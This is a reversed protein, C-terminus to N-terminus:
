NIFFEDLNPIFRSPENKRYPIAGILLKGNAGLREWWEEAFSRITVSKGSGVNKILPVGPLLDNRYISNIVDNVVQDVAIFDRIQEGLTMPFDQGNSAAVCLSPWFNGLFQGKGFVSFIRLYSLELGNEIAYAIAVLSGAAKSSAYPSIPLLPANAPIFEFKNASLGYEASTGAIVVRRVGARKAADILKLLTNVNWYLLDTYSAVQPSVGVSAMHVLIDIGAFDKPSILDMPKELWNIKGDFNSPVNGGRGVTAFVQNEGCALRQLVSRGIFGTGGTM